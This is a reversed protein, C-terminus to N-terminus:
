IRYGSDQKWDKTNLIGIRDRPYQATEQVSGVFSYHIKYRYSVNTDELDTQLKSEFSLSTHLTSNSDLREESLFQLEIFDLISIFYCSHNRGGQLISM